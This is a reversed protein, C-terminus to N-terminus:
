IESEWTDLCIVAEMVAVAGCRLRYAPQIGMGSLTSSVTGVLNEEENLIVCM